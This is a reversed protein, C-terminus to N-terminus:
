DVAFASDIAKNGVVNDSNGGTDKANRRVCIVLEYRLVVSEDFYLLIRFFIANLLIAPKSIPDTKILAVLALCLGFM